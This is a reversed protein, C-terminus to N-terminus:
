TSFTGLTRALQTQITVEGRAINCASLTHMSCCTNSDVEEYLNMAGKMKTSSQEIPQCGLNASSFM